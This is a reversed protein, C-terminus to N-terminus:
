IHILSLRDMKQTDPAGGGGGGENQELIINCPCVCGLCYYEFLTIKLRKGECTVMGNDQEFFMYDTLVLGGMM